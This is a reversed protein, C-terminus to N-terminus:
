CLNANKTLFLISAKIRCPCILPKSILFLNKGLYVYGYAM